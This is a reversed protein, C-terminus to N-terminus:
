KRLFSEQERNLELTQSHNIKFYSVKTTEDRKFDDRKLSDIVMTKVAETSDDSFSKAEVTSASKFKLFDVLEDTLSTLSYINDVAKDTKFEVSDSTTGVIFDAEYHVKALTLFLDRLTDSCTTESGLNLFCLYRDSHIGCGKQSIQFSLKRDIIPDTYDLQSM